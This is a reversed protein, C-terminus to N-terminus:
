HALAEQLCDRGADKEYQTVAADNWLFETVGAQRFRDIGDKVEQRNGVVALEGISRIGERRLSADYSPLADFQGLRRAIGNRATATERTVCVPVGAVVRPTSRDTLAAAQALVPVTVEAITKPGVCWLVVGDTLAGAVALTKPGLAATVVPLSRDLPIQLSLASQRDGPITCLPVLQELYRALYSVPSSPWDGVVGEVLWRHSLGIGLTLRHGTVSHVTLAQQALVRPHRGFIPIVATGLEISPVQSGAVALVTLCDLGFFNPAWFSAAGIAAADAVATAVNAMEGRNVSMDMIGIRM